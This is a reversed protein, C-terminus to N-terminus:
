TPRRSSAARVDVTVAAESCATSGGSTACLRYTLDDATGAATGPASRYRIAPTRDARTLLEATGSTPQRVVSVTLAADAPAWLDNATVDVDVVGGSRVTAADPTAEVRLVRFLAGTRPEGRNGLLDYPVVKWFWEGEPVGSATAVFADAGAASMHMSIQDATAGAEPISGADCGSSGRRCAYLWVDAPNVGIATEVDGPDRVGGASFTVAGADATADMGGVVQPGVTDRNLTVTGGSRNQVNPPAGKLWSRFTDDVTQV